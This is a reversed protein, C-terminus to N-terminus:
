EKRAKKPILSNGKEVLVFEIVYPEAEQNWNGNIKVWIDQFADLSHYGEKLADGEDMYKLKQKLLQTVKIKAFYDKSLMIKKCKYIGGVKVMPKKWMRRTVTKRGELIMEEHEPKFLM